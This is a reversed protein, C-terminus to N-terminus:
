GYRGVLFAIASTVVVFAAIWLWAGVNARTRRIRKTTVLDAVEDAVTASRVRAAQMCTHSDDRRAPELHRPMVEGRARLIDADGRTMRDRATTDDTM